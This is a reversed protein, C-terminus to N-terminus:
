MDDYFAQVEDKTFVGTEALTRLMKDLNACVDHAMTAKTWGNNPNSDDSDSANGVVYFKRVTNLFQEKTMTM